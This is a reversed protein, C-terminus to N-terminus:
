RAGKKSKKSLFHKITNIIYMFDSKFSLKELYELDLELREDFTTDSRGGIQWPGTLGPKVKIIENYASGMDVIEKELYPRPGVLSMNGILVNIFQPFEDISTKRLFKGLPTIRPDNYLKKYTKYELAAKPNESLYKDLVADADVIMSRYKYMKFLKGDKAVRNQTYFLPGRDKKALKAIYLGLTLPILLICGVIGGLIDELRKLFRYPLSLSIDFNKSERSM